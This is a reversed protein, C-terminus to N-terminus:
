LFSMISIPCSLCFTALISTSKILCRCELSPFYDTTLKLSRSSRHFEHTCQGATHQSIEELTFSLNSCRADRCLTGLVKTSRKQSRSVACGVGLLVEKTCYHTVPLSGAKLQAPIPWYTQLELSCHKLRAMHVM